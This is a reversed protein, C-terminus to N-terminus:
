DNKLTVTALAAVKDDEKTKMLIVGQANRSVTRIDDVSTRIVIGETTILMLEQDPTVVKM